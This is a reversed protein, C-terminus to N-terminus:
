LVGKTSVVEGSGVAGKGRRTTAVRVAGAVAKFVSEARHHDNEGWVVGVHLTVRAEFAWSRLGHGVMEASLAGLMERKLGLEGRYFPRNSLDVVAWALADDLPADGRGFRVLSTRPGLASNFASGLALFTDEATHHEDICLDGSARIALSWGAHKALAHLLHDLFGIGTTLLIQQTPTLQTAHLSPPLPIPLSPHLALLTQHAPSLEHSPSTTPPFHESEEFPLLPGGDLSLSVQIKTENTLRSLSHLRRPLPSLSSSPPATSGM